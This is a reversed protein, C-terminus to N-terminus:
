SKMLELHDNGKPLWKQLQGSCGGPESRLASESRHIVPKAPRFTFPSGATMATPMLIIILNERVPSIEGTLQNAEFIRVYVRCKLM